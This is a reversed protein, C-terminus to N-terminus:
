VNADKNNEVAGGSVTEAQLGQGVRIVSYDAAFSSVDIGVFAARGFFEGAALQNGNGRPVAFEGEFGYAVSVMADAVREMHLGADNRNGLGCFYSRHVFRM